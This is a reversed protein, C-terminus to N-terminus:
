VATCLLSKSMRQCPLLGFCRSTKREWSLINFIVHAFGVERETAGTAAFTVRTQASPAPHETSTQTTHNRGENAKATGKTRIVSFTKDKVVNMHEIKGVHHPSTLVSVKLRQLLYSDNLRSLHLILNSIWGSKWKASSGYFILTSAHIIISQSFIFVRTILFQFDSAKFNRWFYLGLHWALEWEFMPQLFGVTSMAKYLTWLHMLLLFEWLESFCSKQKKEKRETKKKEGGPTISPNHMLSNM